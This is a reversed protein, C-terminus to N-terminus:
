PKCAPTSKTKPQKGGPKSEWLIAATEKATRQADPADIKLRIKEECTVTSDIGSPLKIM